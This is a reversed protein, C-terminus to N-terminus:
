QSQSRLPHPPPCGWVTGCCNWLNVEGFRDSAPLAAMIYRVEGTLRTHVITQGLLSAAFKQIPGQLRVWTPSGLDSGLQTGYMSKM